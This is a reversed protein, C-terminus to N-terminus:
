FAEEIGFYLGSNGDNGFGLDVRINVKEDKNFLFRLGLGYSYKLETLSFQMLESAVDGAGFFVAFGFKWWFYQRYEVQMMFYNKDRYRGEFYGRMRNEGGLAALYYFPPDGGIGQFYVNGAIVHDPSFANYHRLDLEVSYFKYDGWDPYLVLKLYQYTGFNPFFLNDRSDWVLDTGIGIVEGGESGLVEDNILYSNNKKDEIETNNYDFIIGTRDSEFWLPPVQFKFEGQFQNLTYEENGTDETTNGIGWFKDVYFGFNFPFELYVNNGMFYLVPKISINYQNNTSYWGGITVKSPLIVTDAATYFIFIGGIGFALQTEPTYYAYPYGNFQLSRSTTSDEGADISEIVDTGEQATVTLSFVFSLLLILWFKDKHTNM